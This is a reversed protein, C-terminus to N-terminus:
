KRQTKLEQEVGENWLKQAEAILERKLEQDIWKGLERIQKKQEFTLKRKKKGRMGM